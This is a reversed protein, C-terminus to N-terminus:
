AREWNSAALLADTHLEDPDHGSDKPDLERVVLYAAMFKCARVLSAPTTSYGGSYTVRIRSGIPLYLGLTFWLHGTNDPGDLIQSQTLNQPQGGYTLITTVAVDSYTWMDQYRVPFEDLWCERVLPNDGLSQAYSVGLTGQIPMPLNGADGYQDPDVAQARHTETVTFPALRRGGAEEEILRTAELLIDNVAPTDWESVLDGYASETFQGYTILPTGPDAM